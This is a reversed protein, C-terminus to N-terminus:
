ATSHHLFHLPPAGHVWRWSPVHQGERFWPGRQRQLPDLKAALHGRSRFAQLLRLLCLTDALEEASVSSYARCSSFSEQSTLLTCCGPRQSIPKKLINQQRM